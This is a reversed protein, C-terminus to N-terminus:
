PRNCPDHELGLMEGITSLGKKGEVWAYALDLAATQVEGNADTYTIIVEYTDEYGTAKVEVGEVGVTIPVDGDCCGCFLTVNKQREILAAAKDAEAKSIYALQDASATGVFALFAFSLILKKM